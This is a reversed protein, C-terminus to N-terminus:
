RDKTTEKYKEHIENLCKSVAEVIDKYIDDDCQIRTEIHYKTDDITLSTTILPAIHNM